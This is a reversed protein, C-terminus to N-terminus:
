GELNTAPKLASICIFNRYQDASNIACIGQFGKAALMAQIEEAEVLRINGAFRRKVLSDKHTFCLVLNGGPRLVREIESFALGLDQWYFISNTSCAKTFYRSPYPLAEAAACKLEVKSGRIRNQFRNECYAVMAPSIDVGALLGDTVISSMQGLLYGGGFGIELVRDTPELALMDFVADNLVANRRNWAFATFRSIIGSPNGLQRAIFKSFTM